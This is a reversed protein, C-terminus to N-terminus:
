YAQKDHSIVQWATRFIIRIDLWFSWNQIYWIDRKVRGKMQWLEATEGRFGTTQAWGTLGPRVFHRVMYDEILNSYIDTHKCMHPRPGVLSMDGVFINWLQPLEDISTKRMFNGFPYKRPDDKTAQKTDAQANIHMSRFKWMLFDKGNRGTRMQGFFPNGPSQLEIGLLVFPLFPLLCLLAIGSVIIDFTRKIFRNIPSRLPENFNAFVVQNAVTIPMLLSGFDRLFTPVYYFHIVNHSCYNILKLCLENQESPLACYLEDGLRTDTWTDIVDYNGLYKMIASLSEDEEPSCYGKYSLGTIANYDLNYVIQQIDDVEGVFFLSRSNRGLRRISKIAFFEAIRVLVLCLYTLVTVYTVAHVNCVKIKCVWDCGVVLIALVIGYTICLSTVLQLVTDIKTYQYHLKTHFRSEAAVLAVVVMALFINMDHFTCIELMDLVSALILALLVDTFIIVNRLLKNSTITYHNM